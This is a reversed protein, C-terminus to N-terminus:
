DTALEAAVERAAAALGDPLLALRQDELEDAFRLRELDHPAAVARPM